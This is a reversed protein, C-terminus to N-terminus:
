APLPLRVALVTGGDSEIRMTGGLADVRDAIGALGRARRTRRAPGTTASRSRWSATRSRRACRRGADAQAHKVVNTLAEALIFYASAEIDPPLRETSIDVDVPLHM